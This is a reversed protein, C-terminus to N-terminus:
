ASIAPPRPGSFNKLWNWFNTKGASSSNISGSADAVAEYTLTVGTTVLKDGSVNRQIVQAHLNNYTPLISFVSHDKGDVGHMGLDNWGVVAYNGLAPVTSPLAVDGKGGEDGGGGGCASLIAFLTVL